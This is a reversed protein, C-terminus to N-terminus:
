QSDKKLTIFFLCLTLLSVHGISNDSLDLHELAVLENFSGSAITRIDNRSIDLEKLHSLTNFNLEIFVLKNSSLNLSVLSTLVDFANAEIQDIKNASL